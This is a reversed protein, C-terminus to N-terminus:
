YDIDKSSPQHRCLCSSKIQVTIVTAAFLVNTNMAVATMTSFTAEQAERFQMEKGSHMRKYM